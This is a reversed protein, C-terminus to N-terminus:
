HISYTQAPAPSTAVAPEPAPANKAKFYAEIVEVVGGEYIRFFKLDEYTVMSAKFLEIIDLINQPVEPTFDEALSNYAFDTLLRDKLTTADKIITLEDSFDELHNKIYAFDDSQEFPKYLVSVADCFKFEKAKELQSAKFDELSQAETNKLLWDMARKGVLMFKYNYKFMAEYHLSYKLSEMELRDKKLAIITEKFQGAVIEDKFFSEDHL